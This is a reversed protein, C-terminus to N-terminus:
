WAMKTVTLLGDQATYCDGDAMKTLIANAIAASAQTVERMTEVLQARNMERNEIAFTVSNIITVFYLENTM